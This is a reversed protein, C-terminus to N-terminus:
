PSRYIKGNKMVYLINEPSLSEINELPNGNVLILDGSKGNALKGANDIGLCEMGLSTAATLATENGFFRALSVIERYNQGHPEDLSGVYDSGCVIKLGHEKALNMDETLHRKILADRVPSASPKAAYFAALTPVYYIEKKKIKSAIEDTLGIGHEISDVGAEIVNSLALEGYAHAAVKVGVRHAEDVIASLEEVTLQPRPRNGQAFSGSAYVKIVKAGDRLCMRVARRCEWPGDAFYSYSLEQAIHLPLNTPDDDGGTQGLSKSAAIVTPGEISGEAEALALYTAAKSGLDRVATFGAQILKRMDSVSRLAGLSEPLMVWEALGYKQTGFFHVHADVLGPLITVNPHSIKKADKPEEVESSKGADLILGSNQDVVVLGDEILNRGDFLRGRFSLRQM